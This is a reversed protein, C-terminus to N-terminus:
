NNPYIGECPSQPCDLAPAKNLNTTNWEQLSINTDDIVANDTFCGNEDLTVKFNIPENYDSFPNMLESGLQDESPATMTHLFAKNGCEDEIIAEYAPFEKGTVFGIVEFLNNSDNYLLALEIYWEIDPAIAVLPNPSELFMAVYTINNNFIGREFGKITGIQRQEPVDEEGTAIPIDPNGLIPKKRIFDRYGVSESCFKRREPEPHDLVRTGLEVNAFQYTRSTAGEEVKTFVFDELSFGRNDGEFSNKAIHVGPLVPLHGFRDWPAFCRQSIKFQYSPPASSVSNITTITPPAIQEKDDYKTKIFLIDQGLSDPVEFIHIWAAVTSAQYNAEFDAFTQPNCFNSNKSIFGSFNQSNIENGFTTFQNAIDVTHGDLILIHQASDIIESTSRNEATVNPRAAPLLNPLCLCSQDTGIDPNQIDCLSFPQFGLNILENYVDQSSVCGDCSNGTRLNPQCCDTLYSIKDAMFEMGDIQTNAFDFPNSNSLSNFKNKITTKLVQVYVPDFCELLWEDPIKLEVWIKECLGVENLQRGFILYYPVENVVENVKEEFFFTIGENMVNQHLYFGFDYVKFERQFEEPFANVLDCAVAELDTQYSEIDYGTADDLRVYCSQSKLGGSVFIFVLIYLIKKM